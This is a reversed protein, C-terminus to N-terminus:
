GDEAKVAKAMSKAGVEDAEGQVKEALAVSQIEKGFPANCCPCIEGELQALAAKTDKATALSIGQMKPVVKLSSESLVSQCKKHLIVKDSLARGMSDLVSAKWIGDKKSMGIMPRVPTSEGKASANCTPCTDSERHGGTKADVVHECNPLAIPHRMMTLDTECELIALAGPAHSIRFSELGKATREFFNLWEISPVARLKSDGVQSYRVTISDAMALLPYSNSPKRDQLVQPFWFESDVFGVHRLNEQSKERLDELSAYRGLTLTQLDLARQPTHSLVASLPVFTGSLDVKTLQIDLQPPIATWFENFVAEFESAASEVAKKFLRNKSHSLDFALEFHSDVKRFRSIIGYENSLRVLALKLEEVAEKENFAPQLKADNFSRVEKADRAAEELSLRIATELNADVLSLRREALSEAIVSAMRADKEFKQGKPPVQIVILAADDAREVAWSDGEQRKAANKWLDTCDLKNVIGPVMIDARQCLHQVLPEKSAIEQAFEFNSHLAKKQNLFEAKESASLDRESEIGLLVNLFKAHSIEKGKFLDAFDQMKLAEQIKADKLVDKFTGPTSAVIADFAASIGEPFNGQARRKKTAFHTEYIFEIGAELVEKFLKQAESSRFKAGFNRVEKEDKRSACLDYAAIADDYSPLTTRSKFRNEGTPTRYRGFYRLFPDTLTSVAELASPSMAAASGDFRIVPAHEGRKQDKADKQPKADFRSAEPVFFGDTGLAIYQMDDGRPTVVCQVKKADIPKRHGLGLVESDYETRSAYGFNEPDSLLAPQEGLVYGSSDGYTLTVSCDDFVRTVQCSLPYHNGQKALPGSNAMALRSVCDLLTARQREDTLMEKSAHHAILTLATLATQVSVRMPDIDEKAHGDHGDAVAIVCDTYAIADHVSTEDSLFTTGLMFAIYPYSGERGTMPLEHLPYKKDAFAVTHVDSARGKKAWDAFTRLALAEATKKNDQLRKAVPEWNGSQSAQAIMQQNTGITRIWMAGIANGAKEFKKAVSEWDGTKLATKIAQNRKFDKLKGRTLLYKQAYAELSGGEVDTPFHSRSFDALFTKPVTPFVEVVNGKLEPVGPPAKLIKPQQIAGPPPLAAGAAPPVIGQAQRLKEEKKDFLSFRKKGLPPLQAHVPNSKGDTPASLPRM